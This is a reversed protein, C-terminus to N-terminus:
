AARHAGEASCLQSCQGLLSGSLELGAGLGQVYMKVTFMVRGSKIVHIYGPLLACAKASGMSTAAVICLVCALYLAVNSAEFPWFSSCKNRLVRWCLSIESPASSSQTIHMAHLCPLLLAQRADADGLGAVEACLQLDMTGPQGGLHQAERTVTGSNELIRIDGYFASGETDTEM